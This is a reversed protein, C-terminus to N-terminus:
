FTHVVIAVGVVLVGVRYVLLLGFVRGIRRLVSNAGIV